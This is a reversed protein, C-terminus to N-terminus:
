VINATLFILLQSKGDSKAKQKFFSGIIPISSLIPVYQINDTRANKYVGGLIAVDGTEIQVISTITEENTTVDTASSEGPSNNSIELELKVENDSIIRPVISIKLNQSIEKTSGAADGSAPIIKLLKIVFLLRLFSILLFTFNTFCKIDSITIFFHSSIHRGYVLSQYRNIIELYLLKTIFITNHVDEQHFLIIGNLMLQLFMVFRDRSFDKPTFEIHLYKSAYKRILKLYM